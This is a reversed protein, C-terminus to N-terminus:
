RATTAPRTAPKNSKRKFFRDLEGKEWIVLLMSANFISSYTGSIIGILLALVFNRVTAGGFLYLASLTFIVTLSTNLSRVLTQVLSHNVLNEFPEGPTRIQNERIRDFVVISDHVSFGIVTLLATVFLADIEVGFFYGLMAFIGLVILVDHIMGFIACLGYRWPRAVKRFAYALYAMIGLSALIVALFSRTTVEGAVTPGSTNLGLKQPDFGNSAGFRKTLADTLFTKEETNDFIQGTRVVVLGNDSQQAIAQFSQRERQALLDTEAQNKNPKAKLQSIFQGEADVLAREIETGAPVRAKDFYIDWSTGGTFDISARLGGLLIFVLGPIIIITSVIIFTWRHKVLDLSKRM